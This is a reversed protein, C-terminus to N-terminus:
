KVLNGQFDCAFIAYSGNLSYDAHNIGSCSPTAVSQQLALTKPDRFDLRKLAEAVVIMSKGDPTFYLNYPDEVPIAAGTKGTTPDIPILSGNSSGEANNAIWLTKLDWSPVVHQPNSGATLTDVVKMTKPDIVSV